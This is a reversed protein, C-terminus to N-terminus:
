AHWWKENMNLPQTFALYPVLRLLIDVVRPSYNEREIASVPDRALECILAKDTVAQHVFDQIQQEEM